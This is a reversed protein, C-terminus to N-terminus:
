MEGLFDLHNMWVAASIFDAKEQEFAQAITLIWDKQLRCDADTTVIFDGASKAIGYAIAQKKGKLDDPLSFVKIKESKRKECLQLGKDISHDNVLIVEINQYSQVLIDKILFALNKEEDKFAIILSVIINPIKRFVQEKSNKWSIWYNLILFLYLTFLLFSLFIYIYM